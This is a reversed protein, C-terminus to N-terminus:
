QQHWYELIEMFDLPLFLSRMCNGVERIRSLIEGVHVEWVKQYVLYGRANIVYISKATVFVYDLVQNSM